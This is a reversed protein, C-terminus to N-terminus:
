REWRRSGRAVEGYERELAWNERLALRMMNEWHRGYRGMWCVRFWGMGERRGDGRGGMVVVAGERTVLAVGVMIVSVAGGMIVSVAGGTTVLAAGGMIALAAGLSGM